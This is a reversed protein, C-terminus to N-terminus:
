LTDLDILRVSPRAKKVGSAEEYGPVTRSESGSRWSDGFSKTKIYRPERRQRRCATELMTEMEERTAALATIRERDDSVLAKAMEIALVEPTAVRPLANERAGPGVALPLSLLFCTAARIM